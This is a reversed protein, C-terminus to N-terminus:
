NPRSGGSLRGFWGGEGNSYHGKVGLREGGRERKRMGKRFNSFGDSLKSASKELLETRGYPARGGSRRSLMIGGGARSRLGGKKWFVYTSKKAGAGVPNRGGELDCDKGGARITLTQVLLLDEVGKTGAMLRRNFVVRASEEWEDESASQQWEYGDGGGSDEQV